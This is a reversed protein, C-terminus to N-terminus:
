TSSSGNNSLALTITSSATNTSTASFLTAGSFTQSTQISGTNSNVPERPAGFKLFTAEKSILKEYDSAQMIISKDLRGANFAIKENDTLLSRDVLLRVEPNFSFPPVAGVECKTLEEVKPTPAMMISQAGFHNKIVNFDIRMDAPLVALVYSSKNKAIGIRLLMAKAGQHLTNGRIACIRESQGEPLHEIVEFQINADTLKKKVANFM